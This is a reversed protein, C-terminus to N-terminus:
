PMCYSSGDPELSLDCVLQAPRSEDCRATDYRLYRECHRLTDFRAAVYCDQGQANCHVYRIPTQGRANKPLRSCGALAACCTLAFLLGAYRGSRRVSGTM